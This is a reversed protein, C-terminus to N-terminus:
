KCPFEVDLWKPTYGSKILGIASARACRIAKEHSSGRGPSIAEALVTNQKVAYRAAQRTLGNASEIQEIWLEIFHRATEALEPRGSKQFSGEYAKFQVLTKYEILSAQEFNKRRINVNGYFLALDINMRAFREFAESTAFPRQEVSWIFRRGFSNQIPADIEPATQWSVFDNEMPMKMMAERMAELQENTYCRAIEENASLLKTRVEDSLAIIRPAYQEIAVSRKEEELSKVRKQQRRCDRLLALISIALVLIIAIAIRRKLM